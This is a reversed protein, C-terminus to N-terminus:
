RLDQHSPDAPAPEFRGDGFEDEARFWLSGDTESMYAVIPAMDDLPTATQLHGRGLETYTSGRKIHRWRRMGGVLLSLDAANLLTVAQEAYAEPVKILTRWRKIYVLKLKDTPEDGVYRDLKPWGKRFESDESGTRVADLMHIKIHDPVPNGAESFQYFRKQLIALAEEVTGDRFFRQGIHLKHDPVKEDLHWAIHQMKAQGCSSCPIGGFPTVGDRSNWIREKAGCECRYLMLAFAEGHKYPTPL